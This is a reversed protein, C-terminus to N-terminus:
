IEVEKEIINIVDDVNRVIYYEGGLKEFREQWGIQGPSQKGTETKVELGITRLCDKKIDKMFVLLDSSGKKSQLSVYCSEQEIFRTAVSNKIYLIKGSDQRAKLYNEIAGQIEKEYSNENVLGGFYRHRNKTIFKKDSRNFKNYAIYYKAVHLADEYNNTIIKEHEAKHGSMEKVVEEPTTDEGKIKLIFQKAICGPGDTDYKEFFEHVRQFNMVNDFNEKGVEM